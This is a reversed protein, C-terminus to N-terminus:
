RSRLLTSKEYSVLVDAKNRLYPYPRCKQRLFYSLHNWVCYYDQFIQFFWVGIAGSPNRQAWVMPVKWLFFKILTLECDVISFCCLSFIWWLRFDGYKLLCFHYANSVSILSYLRSLIYFLYKELLRFVLCNSVM